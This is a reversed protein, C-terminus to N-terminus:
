LAGTSSEGDVLRRLGLPNANRLADPLLNEPCNQYCVPRVFRAIASTGVSTFRCDTSAPFPGGHVMAHCVEVGTPYGNIVIRGVKVSFLDLLDAYDDLEGPAAHVTGTLQGGLANIVAHIEGFNQCKVVLSAPGFIEEHIAPNGLFTEATTVMLSTQACFGESDVTDDGAALLDIGKQELFKDLGDSYANCIRENLMVGALTNDIQEVVADFFEGLADDDLAIVLGPNVCFQGTGLTLSGVFGEAIGAANEQLAKPLLVVPNVSGMEAFVPIPEPRANALKVLATGGAFSGTFGVAKVAPAQVLATGVEAGAGMILSFVGKPLGSKALAKAIAQAVLESTGPHSSHGKVLVPCGAALAAATDGGAVSFALPFNSAGFVVVPGIAQNVSRLDPRPLPVRDPMAPDIRADLYDGKLITEAFLRLQNCTRAREGEGRAAPYGTEATVRAILDTGLAMIEDACAHLFDARQQLSSNRFIPAAEAAAAVAADVQDASAMTMVPALLECTAPNTAQYTGAKGDVWEGNIFLKGTISM